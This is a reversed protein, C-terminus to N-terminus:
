ILIQNATKIAKNLKDSLEEARKSKGILVHIMEFLDKEKEVIKQYKKSMVVFYAIAREIIKEQFAIENTYYILQYLLTITKPNPAKVLLDMLELAKDMGQNWFFFHVTESVAKAKFPSDDSILNTVKVAFDLNHTNSGVAKEVLRYLTKELKPKLNNFFPIAMELLQSDWQKLSTNEFLKLLIKEKHEIDLSCLYQIAKKAYGLHVLNIFNRTIARRKARDDSVTASDINLYVRSLQYLNRALELGNYGYIERSVEFASLKKEEGGEKEMEERTSEHDSNSLLEDDSDDIDSIEGETVEKRSDSKSSVEDDSDDIDFIENNAEGKTSDSKSSAEDESYDIDSMESDTVEKTSGSKSSVEDDSFDIDSIESDTIERTSSIKSSVNDDSKSYYSNTLDEDDSFSLENSFDDSESYEDKSSPKIWRNEIEESFTVEKLIHAISERCLDISTCVGSLSSQQHMTQVVAYLREIQITQSSKDMENVLSAVCEKLPAAERTRAIFVAADNWAKCVKSPESLESNKFQDFIQLLLEQPLNFGDSTTGIM